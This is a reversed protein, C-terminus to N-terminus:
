ETASDRSRSRSLSRALSRPNSRSRVRRTTMTRNRRAGDGRRSVVCRKLERRTSDERMESLPGRLEADHELADYLLPVAPDMRVSGVGFVDKWTGGYSCRLNVRENLVFGSWYRVLLFARYPFAPPPPLPSPLPSSSSLSAFDRLLCGRRACQWSRRWRCATSFGIVTSPQRDNAVGVNLAMTSRQRRPREGNRTLNRANDCTDPLAYSVCFRLLTNCASSLTARAVILARTRSVGFDYLPSLIRSFVHFVARERERERQPVRNRYVKSSVHSDRRSPSPSFPRAQHLGLCSRIERRDESAKRRTILVSTPKATVGAFNV